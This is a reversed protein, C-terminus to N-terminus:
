NNLYKSCTLAGLLGQTM